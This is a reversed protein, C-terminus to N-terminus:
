CALFILNQTKSSLSDREHGYTSVFFYSLQNVVVHAFNQVTVPRYGLVSTSMLRIDRHFTAIVTVNVVSMQVLLYARDWAM